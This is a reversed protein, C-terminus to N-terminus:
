HNGNQEQRWAEIASRSFWHKRKEVRIPGPFGSMKIRNNLGSGTIGLIGLLEKRSIEDNSQSPSNLMFDALTECVQSYKGIVQIQAEDLFDFETSKDNFKLSLGVFMSSQIPEFIPDIESICGPNIVAKTDDIWDVKYYGALEVFLERNRNGLSSKWANPDGTLFDGHNERHKVRQSLRDDVSPWRSFFGECFAKGILADAEVMVTVGVRYSRDGFLDDKGIAVQAANFSKATTRLSRAISDFRNM